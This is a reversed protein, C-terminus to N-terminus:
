LQMLDANLELVNDANEMPRWLPGTILKDVLRMARAGALYTGFIDSNVSQLLRNPDPWGELLQAIDDRHYYTSDGNVFIINIRSGIMPVIRLKKGKGTRYSKFYAAKGAEDSGRPHFAKSAQRILRITGAFGGFAFPNKDELIADEFMKLTKESESGFYALLNLKCWFNGM